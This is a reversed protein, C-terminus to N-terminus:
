SRRMAGLVFEGRIEGGFGRQAIFDAPTVASWISRMMTAVMVGSM